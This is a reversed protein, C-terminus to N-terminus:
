NYVLVGDIEHLEKGWSADLSLPTCPLGSRYPRKGSEHIVRGRQLPPIGDLSENDNFATLFQVVNPPFPSLSPDSVAM